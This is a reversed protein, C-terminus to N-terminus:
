DTERFNDWSNTIYINRKFQIHRYHKPTIYELIVILTDMILFEIMMNYLIVLFSCWLKFRWFYRKDNICQHMKDCFIHKVWITKKRLNDYNISRNLKVNQCTCNYKAYHYYTCKCSVHFVSCTISTFSGSM